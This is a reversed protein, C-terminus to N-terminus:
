PNLTLSFKLLLEPFSVHGCAKVVWVQRKLDNYDRRGLEQGCNPCVVFTEEELKRTFGEPPASPAKYPPSDQRRTPHAEMEDEHDPNILEFGQREFNLVQPFNQLRTPRMRGHALDAMAEFEQSDRDDILPNRHGRRSGNFGVMFSPGSFGVQQFLPLVNAHIGNTFFSRTGQRLLDGLDGLTNAPRPTQRSSTGSRAQDGIRSPGASARDENPAAVEREGVYVVDSDDSDEHRMSPLRTGTRINSHASNLNSGELDVVDSTNRHVEEPRRRSHAHRTFLANTSESSFNLPPLQRTNLFASDSEGEDVTLDIVDVSARSPQAVNTTM